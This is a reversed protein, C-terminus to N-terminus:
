QLSKKAGRLWEAIRVGYRVRKGSGKCRRCLRWARGSPSRFKGSGDCKRCAAFPWIWCAVVYGGSWLLGAVIVGAILM